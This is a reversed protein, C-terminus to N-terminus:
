FCMKMVANYKAVNGVLMKQGNTQLKSVVLDVTCEKHSGSRSGKRTILIKTPEKMEIWPISHTTGFPASLLNAGITGTDFLFKAEQANIFMTGELSPYANFTTHHTTKAAAYSEFELTNIYVEHYESFETTLKSSAEKKVKTKGQDKRCPCDKTM